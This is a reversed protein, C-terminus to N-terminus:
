RIIPSTAVLRMRSGESDIFPENVQEAAIM